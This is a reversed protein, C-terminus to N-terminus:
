ILSLLLHLVPATDDQAVEQEEPQKILLGSLRKVTSCIKQNKLFLNAETKLGRMDELLVVILVKYSALKTLMLYQICTKMCM